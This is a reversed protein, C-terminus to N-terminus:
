FIGKLIGRALPRAQVAPRGLLRRTGQLMMRVTTSKGPNAFGIKIHRDRIASLAMCASAVKKGQSVLYALFHDVAEESSPLNPFDVRPRIKRFTGM